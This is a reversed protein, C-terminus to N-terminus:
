ESVCPIEVHRAGSCVNGQPAIERSKGLTLEDSMLCLSCERRSVPLRRAWIILRDIPGCVFPRSLPSSQIPNNELFQILGQERRTVVRAVMTQNLAL